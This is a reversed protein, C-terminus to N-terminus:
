KTYIMKIFVYGPFKKSQVLKRKGNKEVINDEMPVVVEYIYDGLNNNAVMNNLNNLVMNEYTSLVHLVYWKAESLDAM